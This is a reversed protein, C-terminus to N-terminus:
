SSAVVDVAALIREIDSRVGLRHVLDVMDEARCLETLATNDPGTGSGVLLVHLDDVEDAVLRMAALFGAHNKQPDVRAIYAVVPADASIGLNARIATRAHPDPRFRETDFGNPIVTMPRRYGLARHARETSHACTVIETPIIASARGGWRAVRRASTKAWDRHLESIRLNWLVVRVGALRAAVGGVLDAHHLWTQVIDPRHVRLRRWLRFFGVLGRWGSTMEVAEVPIGAARIDDAVPGLNTLSIVRSDVRAADMGAVVRALMREAGHPELGTIVHVVRVPSRHRRAVLEGYLAFHDAVMTRADFVAVRARAAARVRTSLETDRLLECAATALADADGPAVLLGTVGPEILDRVGNVDTAVVPVDRSVAEVLVRPMGEWRSSLMFLDFAALLQAVDRRAGVFSVTDHLGLADAEARAPELLPGEGIVVARLGPEQMALLKTARLWTSPDKQPSLRIVTGVLPADLPVGLEHRAAIREADTRRPFAALDVGSRILRYERRPRIRLRIGDARDSAAVVVLVDTLRALLREALVIGRFALRSQENHFSWGHVTHVVSPVRACRAALRGLVGAKSSSTHVIDPRERRFLRVLAFFAGLDTLGIARRLSPVVVVPVGAARLEHDVTTEGPTGVGAVVSTEFADALAQVVALTTEQAGGVDLKTIVHMVRPRPSATSM